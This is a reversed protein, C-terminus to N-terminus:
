LAWVYSHSHSHNDMETETSNYVPSRDLTTVLETHGFLGLEAFSIGTSKNQPQMMVETETTVHTGNRQFCFHNTKRNLKFM